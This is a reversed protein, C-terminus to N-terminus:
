PQGKARRRPRLQRLAGTIVWDSRELAQAAKEETAGSLERVIRIARQRLKKNSPNLDVMLNSIVKGMRVMSLTTFANLLLKTATGAKLRTSGTLVEPGLDVAIVLDPKQDRSIRLHPNFSILVTRARRRKAEHLAGWVFPTRGSAAIGVVVDLRNVGRFRVADAGANDDDEAGEISQWLAAQGGAMIGQVQDPSARFTPPCESADLTGLRGSTGAGVYFLRGGQRFARAILQICRAVDKEHQRLVSPVRAEERLMLRVAQVLPLKDLNRSDPNRRETPSMATAAPVLVNGEYPDLPHVEGDARATNGAVTVSASIDRAEPMSGRHKAWEQQALRAAGLAGEANLLSVRAQPWLRKINRALLKSFRPQKLLVSGALVFDIAADHPVLRKACALADKALGSAAATLIDTAIKDRRQWADFVEPALAAVEKKGAQQVWAVLDDPANLHLARLIQAGLTPWQGDRDFYYVIAKLSRLGIEYASSKDGLIHGWGGIKATQGNTGRGFCCSGTGSLVLVRASAADALPKTAAALATELDSCAKTITGPWIAAAVKLVRSRDSETRLGALGVCVASPQPLSTALSRLQETLQEDTLLRLNAAAGEKRQLIEGAATALIAVTRTAGGEIGLFLM